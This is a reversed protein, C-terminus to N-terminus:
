LTLEDTNVRVVMSSQIKEKMSDKLSLKEREMLEKQQQRYLALDRILEREINPVDYGVAPESYEGLVRSIVRECKSIDFEGGTRLKSEMDIAYASTTYSIENCVMVVNDPGIGGAYRPICRRNRFPLRGSPWSDPTIGKGRSNDLLYIFEDDEPFRSVQWIVTKNYYRKWEIVNNIHEPNVFRHSSNIQVVPFSAIYDELGTMGEELLEDVYEGCLHISAKFKNHGEDLFDASNYYEAIRDNLQRIFGISPYRPSGHKEPDALIGWEARQHRRSFELMDNIHVLDDAGAFTFRSPNMFHACTELM